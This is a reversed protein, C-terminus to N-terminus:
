ESVGEVGLARLQELLRAHQTHDYHLAHFGLDRATAVNPALDDIYVTEDPQLGFQSLAIEFIQRGPKMCGVLHSYVSGSFYGFVPYTAEFYDAHIDSTNSLLYLPYRGHLGAVLRTMAVNEEFINEWAAVFDAESGEYELAAIAQQLFEARGIQGSEYRQTIEKARPPLREFPTACQSAIRRIARNFDFPILVNGIDFVFARIM